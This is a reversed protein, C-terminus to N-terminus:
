LKDTYKDNKLCFQLNRDCLFNRPSHERVRRANCDHAGAAIRTPLPPALGFFAGVMFYFYCFPGWMTFPGGFILFRLFFAEMQLFLLLFARLIALFNKNELPLPSPRSKGGGGLAQLRTAKIIM